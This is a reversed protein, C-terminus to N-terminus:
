GRGGFILLALIVVAPAIIAGAWLAEWVARRLAAGPRRARAHFAFTVAGAALVVVVYSVRLAAGHVDLIVLAWAGAVCIATALVFGPVSRRDLSM